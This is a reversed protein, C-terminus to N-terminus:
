EGELVKKLACFIIGPPTRKGHRYCHITSVSAEMKDALVRDSLGSEQILQMTAAKREEKDM